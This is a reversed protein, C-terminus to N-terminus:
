QHLKLYSDWDWEGGYFCGDYYYIVNLNLAVFVGIFVWLIFKSIFSQKRSILYAVPFSLISYYEVFNRAGYSCGFWWNWWSACIFSLIIFLIGMFLSESKKIKYSLIIGVLAIAMFPTYTFLGNNTSFWVKLFEPNALNTFSEGSYTYIFLSEYTEIFYIIQPISVLIFGAFFLHIKRVLPIIKRAKLKLEEFSNTGLFIIAPLFIINTPRCLIILAVIIGIIFMKFNIIIKQNIVFLFLSFLFFSYAHSMGNATITYYFLNTSIFVILITILSISASFIKSLLKFLMFLGCWVYFVSALIVSYIYPLSFGDLPGGSIKQLLHISLFFPMQLIAPGSLYKTKIVNNNEDIQFGNGTLSDVQHPWNYASNGHIFWLPLYVYYGAADSYIVGHYNYPKVRSHMNLTLFYMAPLLLFIFFKILRSKSIASSMEFHM